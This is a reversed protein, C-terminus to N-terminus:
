ILNIGELTKQTHSILSNIDKINDEDIKRDFKLIIEDTMGKSYPNEPDYIYSIKHIIRPRYEWVNNIIQSFEKCLEEHSIAIFFKIILEAGPKIISDIELIEKALDETSAILSIEAYNDNNINKSKFQIIFERSMDALNIIDQRKSITLEGSLDRDYLEGELVIKINDYITPDFM